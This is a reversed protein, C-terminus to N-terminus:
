YSGYPFVPFYHQGVPSTGKWLATVFDIEQWRGIGDNPDPSINPAYFTGFATKLALGGGLRTRDDQKPVAHCSACGGAEFMTRGNALDATHPALASASVSAPTTLVWFAAGCIIIIVLALIVLKRLM